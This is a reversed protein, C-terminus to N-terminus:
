FDIDMELAKQALEPHFTHLKERLPQVLRQNFERCERCVTCVQYTSVKYLAPMAIYDETITIATCAM